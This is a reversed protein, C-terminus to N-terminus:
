GRGDFIRRIRKRKGFDYYVEMFAFLCVSLSILIRMFCMFIQPSKLGWKELYRGKVTKHKM